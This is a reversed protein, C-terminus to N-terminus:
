QGIEKTLTELEQTKEKNTPNKAEIPTRINPCNKQTHGLRGCSECLLNFGEYAIKPLSKRHHHINQPIKRHTSSQLDKCIKGQHNPIYM